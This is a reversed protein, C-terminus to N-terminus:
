IRRPEDTTCDFVAVEQKKSEAKARKLANAHGQIEDIIKDFHLVKFWRKFNPNRKVTIM